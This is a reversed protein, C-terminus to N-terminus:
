RRKLGQLYGRFWAKLENSYMGKSEDGNRNDLVKYVRRNGPKWNMVEFSESKLCEIIDKVDQYSM